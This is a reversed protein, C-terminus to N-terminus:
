PGPFKPMSFVHVTKGPTRHDAEASADGPFGARGLHGRVVPTKRIGTTMPRGDPAAFTDVGGVHLCTITAPLM